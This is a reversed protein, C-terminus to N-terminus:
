ARAHPPPAPQPMPPETVAGRLVTACVRNRGTRKAVYLQGDAQELLQQASAPGAELTAVGISLTLMPHWARANPLTLRQTAERIREALTQAQTASTDPLLCTFEEGGHRAALDTSRTVVKRLVQAVARLYDDGISHGYADNVGKFHDVDLLLLSLPQGTRQQRAHERHLALDFARRNPLGTLTDSLSQQELAQNAAQLAQQQQQVQQHSAALRHAMRRYYLFGLGLVLALLAGAVSTTQWMARQSRQAVYREIFQREGIVHAAVSESSDIAALYRDFAAAVRQHAPTPSFYFRYSRPDDRLTHIVELDFFEHAYRKEEFIDRSYVALDIAGARLAQFMGESGAQDFRTLRPAAVMAQVQPELAVGKVLGVRYPALDALGHVPLPRGKRAIVAYYSEYYPLTFLGLRARDAQHSLPMFVDARGDQVQQLKDALSLNQGPLLDHRLGLERTIFCWVDVGIGSYSKSAPDYRAMPPADVALVRLPALARFEAKEQPSIAVPERLRVHRAGACDLAAAPLACCLALWPACRLLGQQFRQWGM